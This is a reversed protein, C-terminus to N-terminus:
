NYKNGGFIFGTTPDLKIKIEFGEDKMHEDIKVGANWERFRIGQAHKEIIHQILDRIKMTLKPKNEKVAKLHEAHDDSYFELEFTEDLFEIGEESM